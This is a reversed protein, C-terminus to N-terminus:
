RGPLAFARVLDRHLGLMEEPLQHLPFYRAETFEVNPPIASVEAHVRFFIELHSRSTRSEAALLEPVAPDLDLGLEERLERVLARRPAERAEVWGGPMGWPAGARFRHKLLLVEGSPNVVM